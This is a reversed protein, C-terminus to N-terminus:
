LEGEAIWLGEQPPTPQRTSGRPGSGRGAEVHVYRPGAFQVIHAHFLLTSM